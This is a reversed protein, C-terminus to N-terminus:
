ESDTDSAFLASGEPSNRIEAMTEVSEPGTVAEPATEV